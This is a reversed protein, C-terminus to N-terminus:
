SQVAHAIPGIAKLQAGTESVFTADVLPVYPVSALIPHRTHSTIGSVASPDHEGVLVVGLCPIGQADLERLTLLTHNITGLRTASVVLTPLALDRILDTQLRERSLPVALGGAGEVIWQGPMTKWTDLIRRHDILVGEREAAYHPSAPTALRYVPAQIRTQSLKALRKVTETDDDDGTQVPKWYNACPFFGAMLASSILTKGVGTDTGTVFIGTM